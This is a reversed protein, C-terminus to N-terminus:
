QLEKALKAREVKSFSKNWALFKAPKSEESDKAKKDAGSSVLYNITIADGFGAAYMLATRGGVHYSFYLPGGSYEANQGAESDVMKKNVDAGHAILQKITALDNYQAAQMLATKGIKNTENVDAGAEILAAAVDPRDVATFLPPEAGGSVPAGLKLLWQIIELNGGNLIQLRLAEALEDKTMKRLGIRKKLEDVSEAHVSFVKYIPLSITEALQSHSYRGLYSMTFGQLVAEAYKNALSQTIHLRKIYHAALPAVAKRTDAKLVEYEKHNYLETDAWNKLFSQFEADAQKSEASPKKEYYLQPALSAKILELQQQRYNGYVMTGNSVQDEQGNIANIDSTVKAVAPISQIDEFKSLNFPLAAERSSYYYAAFADACAEPHDIFILNPPTIEGRSDAECIWRLYNLVDKTSKCKLTKTELGPMAAKDPVQAVARRLLPKIDKQKDPFKSKNDFYLFALYAKATPNSFTKLEQEALTPNIYIDDVARQLRAYPNVAVHRHEHTEGAFAPTSCIAFTASAMFLKKASLYTRM